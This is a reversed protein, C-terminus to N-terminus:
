YLCLDLPYLCISSIPVCEDISSLMSDFKGPCDNEFRAKQEPPLNKLIRKWSQLIEHLEELSEKNPCSSAYLRWTPYLIATSALQFLSFVNDYFDLAELGSLQDLQIARAAIAPESHLGTTSHSSQM